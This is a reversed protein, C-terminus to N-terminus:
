YTTSKWKLIKVDIDILSFQDIINKTTDKDLNEILTISTKYFLNWLTGEKITHFLKLIMLTLKEKFIQYLKATFKDPKPSKM